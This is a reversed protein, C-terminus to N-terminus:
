MCATGKCSPPPQRPPVPGDITSQVIVQGYPDHTSITYYITTQARTTQSGRIGTTWGAVFYPAYYGGEPATRGSPPNPAGTPCRSVSHIFYCFGTRTAADPAPNFLLQRASWPGWPNPATRLYIGPPRGTKCDYIM